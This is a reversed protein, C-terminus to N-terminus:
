GSADDVDYVAEVAPIGGEAVETIIGGMGVDLMWGPVDDDGPHSM